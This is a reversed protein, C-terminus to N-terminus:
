KGSHAKDKTSYGLRQESEAPFFLFHFEFSELIQQFNEFIAFIIVKEVLIRFICFFSRSSEQGENDIELEKVQM